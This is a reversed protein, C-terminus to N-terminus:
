RPDKPQPAYVRLIGEAVADAYERFISRVLRGSVMREGEYDGALLREYVIRNNVYYPELFVVPGRFMRNAALNRAYVFPNVGLQKWGNSGDEPQPEVPPLGTAGALSASVAEAVQTEVESGGELLKTLLALKGDDDALEAALYNGHVFVVLRNDDTLKPEGEAWPKANFHICLTLDPKLTENILQARARIEESRYFLLEMRKRVRDARYAAQELPHLGAVMAAERSDGSLMRAVDAEAQARYDEPRKRTVPEFGEKLLLVTAGAKELRVKLLNAVILNLAAEQIPRVPTATSANEFEAVFFREEMRAYEGGIHGPDLAIRLGSLPQDPPNNLRRLSEPTKFSVPRSVRSEPRAFKLTWLLQKKEAMSFVSVADDTVTLFPLARDGPAYRSRLLSEFEARTITQQYRELERWQLNGTPVSQGQRTGLTGAASKPQSQQESIGRSTVGIVIAVACFCAKALANGGSV